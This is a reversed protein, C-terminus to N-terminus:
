SQKFAQTTTTPCVVLTCDGCHRPLQRDFGTRETLAVFAARRLGHYGM